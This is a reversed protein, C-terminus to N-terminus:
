SLISCFCYQLRMCQFGLVPAITAPSDEPRWQYACPAKDKYQSTAKLFTKAARSGLASSPLPDYLVLLCLCGSVRSGTFGPFGTIGPPGIVGQQGPLGPIGPVGIDGKVGKIYGPRGPLGPIGSLGPVGPM